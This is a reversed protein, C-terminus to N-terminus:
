ATRRTAKPQHYTFTARALHWLADEPPPSDTRLTLRRRKDSQFADPFRTTIRAALDTKCDVFLDLGDPTAANWSLRLTSGTRPKVPRWAPQGWKLSETLPGTDAAEAVRWCLTRIVFAQTQAVDPWLAFTNLLDPALPPM